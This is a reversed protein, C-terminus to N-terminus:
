RRVENTPAVKGPLLSVPCEIRIPQSRADMREQADSWFDPKLPKSPWNFEYLVEVYPHDPLAIWERRIREGRIGGERYVLRGLLAYYRLPRGEVGGPLSAWELGDVEALTSQTDAKKWSIEADNVIIVRAEGLRRIWPDVEAPDSLAGLPALFAPKWERNDDRTLVATLRTLEIEDRGGPRWGWRAKGIRIEGSSGGQDSRMELEYAVLDCPWQIRARSLTWSVGTIEQLRESVLSQFARSSVLWWIGAGGFVLMLIIGMGWQLLRWACGPASSKNMAPENTRTNM